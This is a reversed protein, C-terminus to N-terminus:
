VNIWNGRRGTYALREGSKSEIVLVTGYYAKNITAYQKAGALSVSQYPKGQRDSQLNQLEKIIYTQM